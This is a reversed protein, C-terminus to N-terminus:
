FRVRNKKDQDFYPSNIIDNPFVILGQNADLDIALVHQFAQWVLLSCYWTKKEDGDSDSLREETKHCYKKVSRWSSTGKDQRLIYAIISDKQVDTLAMRLRYRNGNYKPGFSFSSTNLDKGPAFAHIKRLQYENPIPLSNSEFVLTNRLVEDTTKGSYDELVIMVHGWTSGGEVYTTGPRWNDNSKVILDCRKLDHLEDLFPIDSFNTFRQKPIDSENELRSNISLNKSDDTCAIWVSVFCIVILFKKM